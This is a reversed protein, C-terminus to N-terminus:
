RWRPSIFSMDIGSSNLQQREINDSPSGFASMYNLPLLLHKDGDKNAVFATYAVTITHGRPDRGPDGFAGIQAIPVDISGPTTFPIM